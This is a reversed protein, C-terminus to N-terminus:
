NTELGDTVAYFMRAGPCECRGPVKVAKARGRRNYELRSVLLKVGQGCFRCAWVDVGPKIPEPEPELQRSRNMSYIAGLGHM